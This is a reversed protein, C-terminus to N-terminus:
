MPPLNKFLYIPSCSVHCLQDNFITFHHGELPVRRTKKITLIDQDLAVLDAGYLWCRGQCLCIKLDDVCGAHQSHRAHEVGVRMHRHYEETIGSRVHVLVVPKVLDDKREFCVQGRLIDVPPGHQPQRLHNFSANGAHCVMIKLHVPDRLSDFLCARAGVQTPGDKPVLTVVLQFFGNAEHFTPLAFGITANAGPKRGM